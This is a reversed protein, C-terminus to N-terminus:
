VNSHTNKENKTLYGYELHSFKHTCCLLVFCVASTMGLCVGLLVVGYDDYM